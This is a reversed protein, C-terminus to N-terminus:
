GAYFTNSEFVKNYKVKWITPKQHVMHSRGERTQLRCLSSKHVSLLQAFDARTTPKTNITKCRPSSDWLNLPFHDTAVIVHLLDWINPTKQRAEKLRRRVSKGPTASQPLQLCITDKLNFRTDSWFRVAYLHILVCPQVSTHTHSIM